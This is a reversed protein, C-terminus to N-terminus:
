LGKDIMAKNLPQLCALLSNLSGLETVEFTLSIKYTQQQFYILDLM